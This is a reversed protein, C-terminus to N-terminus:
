EMTPTSLPLVRKAAKRLATFLNGRKETVEEERQVKKSKPVRRSTQTVVLTVNEGRIVGRLVDRFRALTGRQMNRHACVGSHGKYM